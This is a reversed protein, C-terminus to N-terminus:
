AFVIGRRLNYVILEYIEIDASDGRLGEIQERSSFQM